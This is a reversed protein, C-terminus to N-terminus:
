LSKVIAAAGGDPVDLEVLGTADASIPERKTIRQDAGFVILEGSWAEGAWGFTGDRLTIIREEGIIVGYDLETLTIPYEFTALNEQTFLKYFQPASFLYLNADEVKRYIDALFDEETIEPDHYVSYGAYSVPTYLTTRLITSPRHPVMNECFRIMERGAVTTTGPPSNGVVLAGREEFADLLALKFDLTVLEPAGCERVIEGTVPDIQYTHGDTRGFDPLLFGFRMEDWYLGDAGIEDLIMPPILELIDRGLSNDLTPAVAAMPMGFSTGRVILGPSGDAKRVLSDDYREIYEEGSILRADYYILCKIGPRLRRLKEIAERLRVRYDAYFDSAVVPGHGVNPVGAAVLKRDYWGGQSMTVNINLRELHERLEEDDYAIIADPDFFNIGGDIQFPEPMWDARVMNILDFDNGTDTAYVGWNMTYSAGPQLGFWDENIAAIQNADDFTFTAHNRLVDDTAVLAVGSNERPVLLWPNPALNSQTVAPDILGGFSVRETRGDLLRLRHRMRIGVPEDSTSTFADSVLLRGDDLRETITRELTWGPAVIRPATAPGTQRPFTLWTTEGEAGPASFESTLEYRHAGIRLAMASPRDRKIVIPESRRERPQWPGSYDPVEPAGPQLGPGKRVELRLDRFVVTLDCGANRAIDENGTNVFSVTNRGRQVLDSIDFAFEYAIAGYYEREKLIEFDPAYALRWQGSRVYWNLEPPSSWAFADPKNLLRVERRETRLLVPADNVAVAIMNTSGVTTPADIRARFALVVQREGIGDPATFQLTQTEQLKLEYDDPALSVTEGPEGTLQPQAFCPIAILLALAVTIKRM